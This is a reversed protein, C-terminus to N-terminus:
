IIKKLSAYYPSIAWRYLAGVTRVQSSRDKTFHFLGDLITTDTIRHSMQWRWDNWNEGTANFHNLLRKKYSKVTEQRDFGTMISDKIELYDSIKEKLEEARKVAIIRKEEDSFKCKEPVSM